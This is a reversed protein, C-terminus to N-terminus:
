LTLLFYCSEKIENEVLLNWNNKIEQILASSLKTSFNYFYDLSFNYFLLLFQFFLMFKYVNQKLLRPRWFSTQRKRRWNIRILKRFFGRQYWLKLFSKFCDFFTFSITFFRQFSIAKSLGFCMCTRTFLNTGNKNWIILFILLFIIQLLM